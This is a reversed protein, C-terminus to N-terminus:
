PCRRRARRTRSGRARTSTAWRCPAAAGRGPAYTKLRLGHRAAARPRRRPLVRVRAADVTDLLAREAGEVAQALEWTRPPLPHQATARELVAYAAVLLVCLDARRIELWVPKHDTM